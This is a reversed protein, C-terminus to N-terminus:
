RAAPRARRGGDEAFRDLAAIVDVAVWVRNREQGRAKVLVGADELKGIANLAAPRSVGLAEQVVNSNVASRRILLEALRWVTSDSRATIRERWEATIADIDSLMDTANDIAAFVADTMQEIIPEINGQRYHGLADFYADVDVLLGASIPVTVNRTIGRRRLLAHIIARGTRGNGDPFPHITEFQAHVLAAHALAPIDNRGAFAVLDDMAAPVRDHHPPVFVAGLPGYRRGGIWVQSTRWRGVWEPHEDGLLAAQMEIISSTDLQDALNIAAEMARVNSVIMAANKRSEDGLEALAIAQATATLQEIRSSAASESRLLISSFPVIRDGFEADFRAIGVSADEAAALADTVITPAIEAIAPTIAADYPQDYRRRATKSMSLDPDIHWDLTEYDLAPWGTGTTDINTTM